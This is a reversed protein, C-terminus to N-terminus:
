RALDEPQQILEFLEVVDLLDVGVGVEGVLRECVVLALLRVSLAGLKPRRPPSQRRYGPHVSYELMKRVTERHLGFVRASERTSMGEVICARRVRAYLEVKYM